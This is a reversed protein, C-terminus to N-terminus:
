TGGGSTPEDHIIIEGKNGDVSIKTNDKLHCASAVSVVAPIKYERAVISSHSLMGGSEAVVAGARAFLPAWGVDSYPVVLVDGQAVKGFDEIGLVVCVSGTYYGRSTAIGRLKNGRPPIIPPLQDGYIVSPPNINRFEEMEAKRTAVRSRCPPTLDAGALVQKIEDLALFFIDDLQALTGRFELHEGLALFYKRFLGYGYTYLSSIAERYYRFQRARKFFFNVLWRNLPALKLQQIEIKDAGQNEPPTYSAIMKLVRTPTERWPMYSFDNGSNSLHGFQKLFAGVANQFEAIGSILAFEDYSCDAIRRRTTENLAAYQQHLHALQVNPYFIEIEPMGKTWDIQVLDIGAQALRRRLVADYMGMLLPTLINYYATQTTLKWLQEIAAILEADTRTTPREIDFQEYQARMAPLFKELKRALFWKDYMMRAMRPFHRLTQRTMKMKPREPGSEEFGMLMELSEAPLGLEEFIRGLTGMNFYTRYYFSKALSAPAITNPGIMETLFNAWAGCVIPINVSWILPKIMGPLIEKAMRNTYVNLDGLMTIDRLQVWNVVQGDYVWELDAPRGYAKAIAQTQTVVQQIINADIRSAEPQAAWKGRKGVWREPTVNGRMLADGIGEVAEVVVEDLGTIPNRSFAIGSIVPCVMEQVIVAMRLDDQAINAKQLYAQVVSTSVSDWIERIARMLSDIGQVNLLSNFQGAFSHEIGDEVNASSRVAYQRNPDCLAALEACVTELATSNNARYALYADWMCVLTAPTHFGRRALFRIKEAKSGIKNPLARDELRFLYHSRM